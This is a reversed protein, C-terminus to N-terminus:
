RGSRTPKTTREGQNVNLNSIGSQVITSRWGFPRGFSTVYLGCCNLPRQPAYAPFAGFPGDTASGGAVYVAPGGEPVPAPWNAANALGPSQALVQAAEAPTQRPGVWTIGQAHVPQDCWAATLALVTVMIVVIKGSTPLEPPTPDQESGQWVINMM